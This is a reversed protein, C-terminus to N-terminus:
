KLGNKEWEGDRDENVLTLADTVLGKPRPGTPRFDGTRVDPPPVYVPRIADHSAQAASEKDRVVTLTEGRRVEEVLEDIHEVLEEVTVVKSM